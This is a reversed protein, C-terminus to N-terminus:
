KVKVFECFGYGVILRSIGPESFIGSLLDVRTKVVADFSPGISEANKMDLGHDMMEIAEHASIGLQNLGSVCGRVPGMWDSTYYYSSDALPSYLKNPESSISDPFRSWTWRLISTPHRPILIGILHKTIFPKLRPSNLVHTIVADGGLEVVGVISHAEWLLVDMVVRNNRRSLYECLEGRFFHRTHKNRFCSEAFIDLDKPTAHKRFYNFVLLPVDKDPPVNASFRSRMELRQDRWHYNAIQFVIGVAEDLEIPTSKAHANSDAGNGYRLVRLLADELHSHYPRLFYDLIEQESNTTVTSNMQDSLIKFM